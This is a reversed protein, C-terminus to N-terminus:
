DELTDYLVANVGDCAFGFCRCGGDDASFHCNKCTGDGSVVKFVENGIKFFGGVPYKKHPVGEEYEMINTDIVVAYSPQASNM